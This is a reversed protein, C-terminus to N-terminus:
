EPYDWYYEYPHTYVDADTGRRVRANAMKSAARLLHRDWSHLPENHQKYDVGTGRKVIILVEYYKKLLLEQDEDVGYGEPDQGTPITQELIDRTEPDMVSGASKHKTSLYITVQPEASATDRTDLLQQWCSPQPQRKVGNQLAYALMEPTKTIYHLEKWGNGGAIMYQVSIYSDYPNSDGLVTLIDLQLGPLQGFVLPLLERVHRIKSITEIPLPALKYFMISPGGFDFLTYRLWKDGIEFRMRRCTGRLALSNSGPRIQSGFSLRTGSWVHRYIEDRIEQPPRSFFISKGQANIETGDAM